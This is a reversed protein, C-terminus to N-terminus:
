RNYPIKHHTPTYMCVPTETGAGTFNGERIALILIVAMKNEKELLVLDNLITKGPKKSIATREFLM